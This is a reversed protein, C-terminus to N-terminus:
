FGAYVWYELGNVRVCTEDFVILRRPIRSPNVNIRESFKRVWEM